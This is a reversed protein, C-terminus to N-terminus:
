LVAGFMKRVEYRLNPRMLPARLVLCPPRQHGPSNDEGDQQQLGLLRQVDLIVEASATATVGVLPVGPFQTTLVHLFKYDPRFDHGWASACHVEDIAFRALRRRGNRGPRSSSWALELRHMLRRSKALKEPTVYLLRLGGVGEEEGQVLSGTSNVEAPHENRCIIIIPVSQNTTNLCDM